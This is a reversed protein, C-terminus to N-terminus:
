DAFALHLRVIQSKLNDILINGYRLGVRALRALAVRVRFNRFRGVFTWNVHTKLFSPDGLSSAYERTACNSNYGLTELLPALKAERLLWIRVDDLADTKGDRV